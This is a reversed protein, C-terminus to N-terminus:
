LAMDGFSIIEDYGFKRHLYMQVLTIHRTFILNTNQGMKFNNDNQNQCAKSGSGILIKQEYKIHM